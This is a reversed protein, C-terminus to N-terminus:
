SQALDAKEVEAARPAVHINFRAEVPQSYCKWFLPPPLWHGHVNKLRLTIAYDGVPWPDDAPASTTPSAPKVPYVWCTRPEKSLLQRREVIQGGPKLVVFRGLTDGVDLWAVAYLWPMFIMTEVAGTGCFGVGPSRAVMEADSERRVEMEFHRGKGLCVTSQSSALAMDVIIPEGQVFEAKEPTVTLRLSGPENTCGAILLAGLIFSPASMFSFLRNM